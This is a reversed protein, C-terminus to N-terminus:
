EIDEQDIFSLHCVKSLTKRTLFDLFSDDSMNILDNSKIQRQPVEWKLNRGQKSIQAIRIVISGEEKEKVTTM